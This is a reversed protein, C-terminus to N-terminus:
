HQLQVESSEYGKLFLKIKIECTLHNLCMFKISVSLQVPSYPSNCVGSLPCSVYYM